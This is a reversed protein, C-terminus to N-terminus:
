AGTRRLRDSGESLWVDHRANWNKFHVLVEGPRTNRIIAPYWQGKDEAEVHSGIVWTPDGEEDDIACQVGVNNPVTSPLQYWKPPRIGTYPRLKDVHVVMPLKNQSEQIKCLKDDIEEVVIFPGKWGGKLKHSVGKRRSEDYYYVAQGRYYGGTRTAKHDYQKKQHMASRKLNARAQIHATELSQQLKTVYEVENAPPEAEPRGVVTHLPLEVERGLMLKNPTFGTSSHVTSRYALMVYPLHKDWDAQKNSVYMRLMQELTRNFREVMGDSQPRRSTTRTKDIGLLKCVQKFLHSEFNTGKDTHLQRPTGLKCIFQEVVVQAVTEAEANPIPYAEMWKTFYDGIVVIHRNGASTKPLPGMLDVAVRELPAGSIQQTLPARSKKPPAKDKGCEECQRCMIEIDDAMYEWYFAQSIRKITREAGPHGGTRHEHLHSFVDQRKGLPVLLQWEIDDEHHPCKRFLLGGRLHLSKWTSWLAKYRPSRDSIDKWAPKIGEEVERMIVGIVPDDLQDQRMAEPDWGELWGQSPRLGTSHDETQVAEHIVALRTTQLSCRIEEQSRINDNLEQQRTCSACPKRSLGDANGHSRGARHKVDLDYCGLVELWRATQGTPCKLSRMWSVASNDTRLNVKQGYIYVHFHKVALVVALLEKRTVCYNMEAKMLSKSFYGIVREIGQQEQSLVAGVCEGSADTDLTFQGERQPYALIPATILLTKLAIFAEQCLQCWAFKVDKSTLKHLPRAISAFHEIFKRYYSCLGLYSRVETLNQPVPWNQVAEIKVPDCQIGQESVVHGLFSVSKKFFNCKSPKLTLGAEKLRDFVHELRDVCQDISKGMVIIDDVYVLCEEWQLGRLVNEMLREFTAPSNVLGMPMVNFEYLGKTTSFATKPRDEPDMEVQWFGSQLDMTCFWKSGGLADLSDDIRPLPYADKRTAENLKRYDVCFRMSGDPKAVLVIPSSWSSTSPRIIKWELMEDVAQHELVRKGFALRRPPQRSPRAEGTDIRHKVLSTRGTDAKSKAFITQYKIFFRRVTAQQEENLETTCTEFLKTLHEPIKDEEEKIFRVQHKQKKDPAAQDHASECTGLCVRKNLRVEEQSFNTLRVQQIDSKTSVLGPVLRVGRSELAAAVPQVLGTEALYGSNPIEVKVVAEGGCPITVPEALLVRCVMANEDNIWCHLILDGLQLTLSGLDLKCRGPLLVDQGLVADLPIDAVLVDLEFNRGGFVVNTKISGALKIEAGSAGTLLTDSERLPPRKCKPIRDYVKTSIVSVTAGTDVLFHTAQGRILGLTYMGNDWGGIHAIRQKKKPELDEDEITPRKSDM